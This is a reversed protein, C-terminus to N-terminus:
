TTQRMLSSPNKGISSACACDKETYDLKEYKKKKMNQPESWRYLDSHRVMAM